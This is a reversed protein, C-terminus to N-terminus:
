VKSPSVGFQKKFCTSFYKSDSFGVKMTVESVTYIHTALLERAKNLRVIRIIENPGKGTLAKLKIFVSSRSMLLQSCFDDITLESNDMEKDIVAMVRDIFDRDLQSKYDIRDAVNMQVAEERLMQRRKLIGRIRTKLIAADFPKTVYDDAGAELGYIINERENLGSVLIIAIHSTEVNNRLRRCLEDGTMVPMMVDSIVIDPNYERAMSLGEGGDSATIVKYNESLIRSLYASMDINDEVILLTGEETQNDTIADDTISTNSDEVTVECKSAPQKCANITDLPFTLTFISGAGEKSEVEIQGNLQAVMQKVMMLGIGEGESANKFSDDVRYYLNFIRRQEERAIGRGTDKVSIHWSYSNCGAMLSIGGYETYKLANIILNDVAHDMMNRDTAILPMDYQVDVSITLGKKEALTKYKACKDDLYERVDMNTISLTPSYAEYRQLQLLASVDRILIDVNRSMMKVIAMDGENLRCSAILEDM